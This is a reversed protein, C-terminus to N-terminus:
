RFSKLTKSGSFFIGVSLMPNKNETKFPTGLEVFMTSSFWQASGLGLMAGVGIYSGRNNFNKTAVTYLSVQQQKPISRFLFMGFSNSGVFLSTGATATVFTTTFFLGNVQQPREAGFQYVIQPAFTAGVNWRARSSINTDSQVNSQQSMALTACGFFAILFFLTKM